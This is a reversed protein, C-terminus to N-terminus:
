KKHLEILENVLIKITETNMMQDEAHMLLLSFPLDEGNAESTIFNFHLHHANSFIEDAELMMNKAKQYEGKKAFELAELYMSKTTGVNAIIEFAAKQMKEKM